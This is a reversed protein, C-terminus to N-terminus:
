RRQRGFKQTESKEGSSVRFDSAQFTYFKMGTFIYVFDDHQDHYIADVHHQRGLIDVVPLSSVLPKHQQRQDQGLLAPTAAQQSSSALMQLKVTAGSRGTLVNIAPPLLFDELPKKTAYDYGVYRDGLQKTEFYLKM